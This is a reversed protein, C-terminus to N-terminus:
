RIGAQLSGSAGSARWHAPWAQARQPREGSIWVESIGAALLQQREQLRPVFGLWAARQRQREGAQLWAWFSQRDPLLLWPHAQIALEHVLATPGILRLGLGPSQLRMGPQLVPLGEVAALWTPSLAQWCAPSDSAVPDLVVAWDYRQVGLGLALQSAQRCLRGDASTSVLAARGHHRAVLLDGRPQHVLLLQDQLLVGAHLVMVLLVLVAGLTRPRLAALRRWRESLLWERPLPWERPLLWPVLGVSLLLVLWPLPKGLQWQAMPLQAFGQTILLLLRTLPALPVALLGLLPATGPLVSLVAMAMAGLTLPTLLPAALLNAPVAYLPLAGFHLLQLPLTWLCAAVPVSLAAALWTPLGRKFVSELDSASLLLGATAAVSLQFGLDLLWSPSWLLMALVTLALIGLPRSRRGSELVAFAVAAMLVARVVSPQPGALLLFLGMAGAAALWRLPPALPRAVAMVAGLLVTLHFGSAALAHSLGAVRFAERVAQPVPVVASGLVLAAWLGGLDAGGRGILAAAMRRRLDAIPTAPRQLVQLERVRLESWIGERALREASGALLPHPGPRPRLLTGSVAVRWGEQLPQCPNLRLQVRGGASQLPLSCGEEPLPSPADRLLTGQLQIEASDGATQLLQVPDQAAPRPRHASGWALALLLVLALAVGRGLLRAGRLSASRVLLLGALLACLLVALLSAPALPMVGLALGLLAATVLLAPM